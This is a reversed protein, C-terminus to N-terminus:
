MDKSLTLQNTQDKAEKNALIHYGEPVTYAEIEEEVIRKYSGLVNKEWIPERKIGSNPGHVYAGSRTTVYETVSLEGKKMMTNLVHEVIGAEISPYSYLETASKRYNGYNNKRPVGSDKRLEGMEAYNIAAAFYPDAGLVDAVYSIFQKQTLGCEEYQWLDEPTTILDRSINIEEGLFLPLIENRQEPALRTSYFTELDMERMADVYLNPKQYLCRIFAMIGAEENQFTRAEGMLVTPGINFTELYADDTFDKTYYKAIEEALLPDVRFFSAYRRIQACLREEPTLSFKTRSPMYMKGFRFSNGMRILHYAPRVVPRGEGVRVSSDTTKCALLSSCITLAGLFSTVRIFRKNM